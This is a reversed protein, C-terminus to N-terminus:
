NRPEFITLLDNHNLLKCGAPSSGAIRHDSTVHHRGCGSQIFCVACAQLASTKCRGVSRAARILGKSGNPCRPKNGVLPTACVFNANTTDCLCTWREPPAQTESLRWRWTESVAFKPPVFADSIKAASSPLRLAATPRSRVSSKLHWSSKPPPKNITASSTRQSCQCNPGLDPYARGFNEVGSTALQRSRM